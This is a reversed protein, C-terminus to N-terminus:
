ASLLTYATTAFSECICISFACYPPVSGIATRDEEDKRGFEANDDLKYRRAELELETTGARRECMCGVTKASVKVQRPPNNKTQVEFDGTKRKNRRLAKTISMLYIGM